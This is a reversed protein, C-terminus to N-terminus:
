ALLVRLTADVATLFKTYVREADLWRRRISAPSRRVAVGICRRMPRRPVQM